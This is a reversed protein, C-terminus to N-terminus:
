EYKMMGLQKLWRECLRPWMSVPPNKVGQWETRMGYGHGGRAFIHMEAPVKARHLALYFQVSNEVKVPDDSTHVLFTPPTDHTVHLENSYSEILKPDPPNGLLNQRSGSHGIAVSFSVVPYILIMFDPRTGARDLPNDSTPQGRDFHTGATSALHGGASFGMIGVRKPDLNWQAARSRVLRLAQQADALPAAHGYVHGEPRPLRYKLVCGAIGISQLWRAIDHGEKDLALIGYGGGPCIVAAAGSAKEKPPLYVTLTPKHVNRVHRDLVAGGTNTTVENDKVGAGGPVGNPWLPEVIPASSEPGGGSAQLPFLVLVLAAAFHTM